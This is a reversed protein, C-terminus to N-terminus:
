ARKNATMCVSNIFGTSQTYSFTGSFHESTFRFKFWTCNDYHSVDVFDFTFVELTEQLETRAINTLTSLDMIDLIKNTQEALSCLTLSERM